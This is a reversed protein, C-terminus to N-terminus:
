ESGYFAGKGLNFNTLRKIVDQNQELQAKFLDKISILGGIQQDEEVIVLHRINKIHMKAMCDELTDDYKAILINPALTCVDKVQIQASDKGVSAVRKIFDGESFIGVLDKNDNVVVLCGIDFASFRVVAEQVPAYEDIKYDIKHYCSKEFLNKANYTSFNSVPKTLTISWTNQLKPFCRSTFARRFM